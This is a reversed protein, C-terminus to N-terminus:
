CCSKVDLCSFFQSILFECQLNENETQKSQSVQCGVQVFRGLIQNMFNPALDLIPKLCPGQMSSQSPDLTHMPPSDKSSFVINKPYNTCNPVLWLWCSLTAGCCKTLDFGILLIQNSIYELTLIKDKFQFLKLKVNPTQHKTTPHAPYFFHYQRLCESKGM